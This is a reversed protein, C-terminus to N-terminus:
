MVGILALSEKLRAEIRDLGFDILRRRQGELVRARLDRDYVVSGLLEAM